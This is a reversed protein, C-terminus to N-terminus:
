LNSGSPFFTASAPGSPEILPCSALVFFFTLFRYHIRIDHFDM